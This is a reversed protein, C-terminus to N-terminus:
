LTSKSYFNSKLVDASVGRSVSKSYMVTAGLRENSVREIDEATNNHTLINSEPIGMRLVTQKDAVTCNVTITWNNVNILKNLYVGISQANWNGRGNETDGGDTFIKVLVRDGEKVTKEFKTLIDGVTNYLPTGGNAGIAPFDLAEGSPTKWFHTVVRPSDFEVLTQTFDVSPDQALIVLENKISKVSADYKRGSSMSGSADSIIINHVTSKPGNSTEKKTSTKGGDVRM